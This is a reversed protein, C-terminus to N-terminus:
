VAPLVTGFVGTEFGLIGLLWLVSLVIAAIVILKWAVALLVRGVLVIVALIVVWVLLGPPSGLPGLGQLVSLLDMVTDLLPPPM